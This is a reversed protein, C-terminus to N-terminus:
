NKRCAMFLFRPYPWPNKNHEQMVNLEPIPELMKEIVFGNNNLESTYIELSRHFHPTIIIENDDCVMANVQASSIHYNYDKNIEEKSALTWLGINKTLAWFCPHPISFVFAGGRKLVTSISQLTIRLNEIVHLALHSIVFDFQQVHTVSYEEISSLEFYINTLSKNHQYAIEISVVSKDIGVIKQAYRSLIGTLYGTGCGVDLVHFSNFKDEGQLIKMIAPLFVNHFTVDQGENLRRYQHIAIRDWIDDM